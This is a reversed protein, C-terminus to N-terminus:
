LSHSLTWLMHYMSSRLLNMIPTCTCGKNQIMQRCRCQIYITAIIHLTKTVTGKQM